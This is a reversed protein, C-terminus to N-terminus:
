KEIKVVLLRILLDIKRKICDGRGGRKKERRAKLRIFSMSTRWVSSRMAAKRRSFAAMISAFM